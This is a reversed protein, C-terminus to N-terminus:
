WAAPERGFGKKLGIWPQSPDPGVLQVKGDDPTRPKPSRSDGKSKIARTPYLYAISRFKSESIHPANVASPTKSGRNVGLTWHCQVSYVRTRRGGIQHSVTEDNRVLVRTALRFPGRNKPFDKPPPPSPNISDVSTSIIHRCKITSICRQYSLMLDILPHVM